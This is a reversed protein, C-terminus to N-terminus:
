VLSSSRTKPRKAVRPMSTRRSAHSRRRRRGRWASCARLRDELRLLRPEVDTSVGAPARAFSPASSIEPCRSAALVTASVNSSPGCAFGCRRADAVISAARSMGATNKWTPWFTPATSPLAPARRRAGRGGAAAAPRRSGARWGCRRARRQQRLEAVRLDALLDLRRVAHQAVDSPAAGVSNRAARRRARIAFTSAATSARCM